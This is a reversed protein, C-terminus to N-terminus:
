GRGKKQKFGGQRGGGKKPGKNFSQSKSKTGKFKSGGGKANRGKFDKRGEGANRDGFRKGGGGMRKGGFKGGQEGMKKGGFRKGGQGMKKGGFGKGGFGPKSLPKSDPRKRDSGGSHAAKGASMKRKKFPGPSKSPDRKRKATPFMDSIFQLSLSSVDVELACCRLAFSVWHLVM